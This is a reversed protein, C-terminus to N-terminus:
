LYNLRAVAQCQALLGHGMQMSCMARASLLVLYNLSADWANAKM